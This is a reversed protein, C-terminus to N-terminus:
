KNMSELHRKAEDADAPDPQLKLAAHLLQAAEPKRGADFYAVGLHYSFSANKPEKQVCERLLQIATGYNQKKKVLIWALTDSVDLSDPKKEKAEQALKLAYDLDGGHDALVSALNNKIVWNDPELKLAKEYYAQAGSWDKKKESIQGMRIQAEALQPQSQAALTLQNMAEDLKNQNLEIDSWLFRAGVLNPDIELATQVSREADAYRGAMAQLEALTEYGMAWKPNARVIAQVEALGEDSKKLAIESVGLLKLSEQSTSDYSLSQKAYTHAEEFHGQLYKAQALIQYTMARATPQPFEGILPLADKEAEDYNGKEVLAQTHVFYPDFFQTKQALATDIAAIAKDPKGEQLALRALILRPTVLSPELELASNLAGEAPDLKGEQIYALGLYYQPLAWKPQLQSAHHLDNIGEEMQGKEAHLYGRLLLTRADNPSTKAADNVIKEAEATSHADHQDIYLAALELSNQLDDPHRKLIDQYEKIAESSKGMRTYYRALAGRDTPNADGLEKIQKFSEEADAGRNQSVLFAALLYHIQINQPNQALGQRIVKEAGTVDGRRAMVAALTTVASISSPDYDLARLLSAEGQTNKADSIQLLAQLFWARSDKPDLQLVQDTKSQAQTKDGMAFSSEAIIMLAETNDPNNKVIDLAMTRARDFSRGKLFMEAAMLQAEINDPAIKRLVSLQQMGNTYDQRDLFIKALKLHPKPDKPDLQIARRYEVVAENTKGEALWHDAQELHRAAREQASGCGILAGTCVLLFLGGLLLAPSARRTGLSRSRLPHGGVTWVHNCFTIYLLWGEM